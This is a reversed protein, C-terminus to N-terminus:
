RQEWLTYDTSATFVVLFSALFARQKYQEIIKHSVVCTLAPVQSPWLCCIGRSSSHYATTLWRLGRPSRYTSKWQAVEGPRYADKIFLTCPGSSTLGAHKHDRLEPLLPRLILLELGGKALLDSAQRPQTLDPRLVLVFM